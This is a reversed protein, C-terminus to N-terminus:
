PVKKVWRWFLSGSHKSAQHRGHNGCRCIRVSIISSNNAAELERQKKEAPLYVRQYCFVCLGHEQEEHESLTARCYECRQIM